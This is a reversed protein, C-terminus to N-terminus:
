ARLVVVTSDVYEATAPIRLLPRVELGAARGEEQLGEPSLRDLHIVDEERVAGAPGIRERVRVLAVRDGEDRIAVPQSVLRQGDAEGEDPDPLVVDAADFAELPHAVAAAVIGGPRLHARAARLFAARGEAGGLLQVTQMPAIVLGYTGDLELARADGVATTVPLTGARERLAGLLVDETDVALVPHGARALDLAVRGTGAGVDVVPADAAHARALRRWLDLDADYGGCEVDHWAIAFVADESALVGCPPRRSPHRDGEDTM